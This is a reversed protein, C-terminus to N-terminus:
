GLPQWLPPVVTEDEPNGFPDILRMYSKGPDRQIDPSLALVPKRLLGLSSTYCNAESPAPCTNAKDGSM